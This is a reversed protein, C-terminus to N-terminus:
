RLQTVGGDIDYAVGTIFAADDSLLFQALAAIEEPRGMRGIPQFTSLSEFVQRRQEVPYNKEIFGDVFPTHVRAPCLCNCRINEAVYDRAVSLTMSFVAGKTMSYAFRDRIGVKSAISAMNLVVGGGQSRMRPIAARLCHYVGRVNVSFLRDFDQPLTHEVNGVHAVGANNVLVDVRQLKNLAASVSDLDGVDCGIAEASGGAAAILAVTEEGAALERELVAVHDGADAQRRAIARGIGSGGGTIVTTRM